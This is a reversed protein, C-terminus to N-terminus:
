PCRLVFNLTVTLPTADMSRVNVRWKAAADVATQTLLPHGAIPVARTVDGSTPDVTLQLDVRGEIRAQRALPPYKPQVFTTFEDAPPNVLEVHTIAAEQQSIPGRYNTLLSRFSLPKGSGINGLSALALGADYVGSVMAPVLREGTRQFTFGESDGASYFIDKSGFVRDIINQMLHWLRAMDPRAKEFGGFAVRQQMPLSFSYSSSGCQTVIGFSVSEFVGDYARYKQLTSNLDHPKIACPNNGKVIDAVTTRHLTTEKTQVIMRPCSNDARAIRSYRVLADAGQQKVELLRYYVAPGADSFTMSVVYLGTPTMDDAAFAATALILAM